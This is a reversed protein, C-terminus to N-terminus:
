SDKCSKSGPPLKELRINAISLDPRGSSSIRFVGNIKTLDFNNSKLCNLPIPFSTWTERKLKRLLKGIDFEARCPYDCDMGVYVSKKPRKNVKIDFTLAAADKFASIDIAPGYIAMEANLKKKSWKIRIADNEGQFNEPEVTIKGSVSKGKLDKVLVGWKKPDGLTIGRPGIIQGQIFYYFNAPLENSFARPASTLCLAALVFLSFATKM